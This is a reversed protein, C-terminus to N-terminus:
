GTRLLQPVAVGDRGTPTLGALSDWVQRGPGRGSGPPQRAMLPGLPETGAAQVGPFFLRGKRVEFLLLPLLQLSPPPPLTDGPEGGEGAGTWAPSGTRHDPDKEV